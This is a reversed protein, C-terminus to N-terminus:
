YSPYIGSHHMYAVHMTHHIYAYVAVLATSALTGFYLLHSWDLNARIRQTQGGSNAHQSSEANGMKCITQESIVTIGPTSVEQVQKYM